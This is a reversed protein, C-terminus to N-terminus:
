APAARGRVMEGAAAVSEYVAADGARPLRVYSAGLSRALREAAGTSFLPKTTDIVLASVEDRRAVVALSEIEEWVAERADPRSAVNACGDTVLVMLAPPGGALRARRAIELSERIGAALPTGGGVLAEDLARKALSASRTPALLTEASNGRFAVVAVSFRRRYADQLLRLAAGKAHHIRNVAMSGSADIAFIVLLGSDVRFQKYRLDSPRALLARGPRRNNSRGHSIAAALLTAELAVKPAKRTDARVYRGRTWSLTQARTRQRRASPAVRSPSNAPPSTGLAEDPAPADQAPIRRDDRSQNNPATAPAPREGSASSASSDPRTRARPALTLRVAADIDREDIADRDGLAAHARAVRVAFIEARHGEVGLRLAAASLERYQEPAVTVRPLRSRARDIRNRLGGDDGAIRSPGTERRAALSLVQLRESLAPPAEEIVHMAVSDALQSDIDGDGPDYTGILAFEAPPAASFGDREIRLVGSNLAAAVTRTWRADALNVSDAYLFGGHSRAILGEALSRRGTRLTRELDLGGVLRDPTAAIPAEVFPMGALLRAFSRALLSKARGPGGGILAGKLGPDVALLMLAFRAETMGAIMELPINM